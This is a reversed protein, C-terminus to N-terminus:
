QGLAQGQQGYGPYYNGYNMNFQPTGISQLTRQNASNLEQLAANQIRNNREVGYIDVNFQQNMSRQDLAPKVFTYYNNVVGNTNTNNYLLMWPSVGNSYPQVSALPKEIPQIQTFGPHSNSLSQARQQDLQNYSSNQYTQPAYARRGTPAAPMVASGPGRALNAAEAQADITADSLSATPASPMRLMQLTTSRVQETPTVPMASNSNTQTQRSEPQTPQNLPNATTPRTTPSTFPQTGTQSGPQVVSPQQQERQQRQMQLFQRMKIQQEAQLSETGGSPSAPAAETSAAISPATQQGQNEPSNNLMWGGLVLTGIGITIGNM